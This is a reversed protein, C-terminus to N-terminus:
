HTHTHTNQTETIDSSLNQGAEDISEEEDECGEEDERFSNLYCVCVCVCIQRDTQVTWRYSGTQRHTHVQRGRLSSQLRRVNVVVPQKRDRHGTQDDVQDPDKNELVSAVSM